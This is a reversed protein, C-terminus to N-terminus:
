YRINTSASVNTAARRVLRRCPTAMAGRCSKWRGFASEPVVRETLSIAFRPLLRAPSAVPPDLEPRRNVAILALSGLWANALGIPAVIRYREALWGGLPLAFIFVEVFFFAQRAM